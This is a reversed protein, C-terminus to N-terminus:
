IFVEMVGWPIKDFVKKHAPHVSPLGIEARKRVRDLLEEWSWRHSLFTSQSDRERPTTLNLYFLVVALARGGGHDYVIVTGRELLNVLTLVAACYLAVTNGPGDVLGVQAYEIDPWANVGNLDRAVNLLAKAKVAYANRPASSDGVWLKESVCIMNM